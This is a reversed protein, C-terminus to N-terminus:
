SSKTKLIIIENIRDENEKLKSQTQKSRKQDRLHIGHEYIKSM